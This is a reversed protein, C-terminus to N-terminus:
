KGHTETPEQKIEVPIKELEYDVEEAYPDYVEPKSKKRKKEGDRDRDRHRREKHKKEKSKSRSRSHPSRSRFTNLFIYFALKFHFYQWSSCPNHCCAVDQLDLIVIGLQLIHM